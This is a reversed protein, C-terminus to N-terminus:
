NGLILKASTNGLNLNSNAKHIVKKATAQTNTTITVTHSSDITVDETILPLRGVNWTSPDEWNGTKISMVAVITNVTVTVNSSVPSTCSVSNTTVECKAYYNTTVTPSVPMTVSSNDSAKFWLLTGSCGTATLTISTGSTISVNAQPTPTTPIPNVTVAITATATCSNANSVTVTYIGSNSVSVNSISVSASTSTYANPGTWAYNTGNSTANLSITSGSCITTLGTVSVTPAVKNETIVVSASATCGNSGSGTVTYTGAATITASATTATFGGTGTWAYSSGGSATLTTSPNACTLNASTPTVTITPPVINETVTVNKFNTCGNAGTTTVLYTAPSTVNISAASSILIGSFYWKYTAGGSATLTLNPNTCNLVTSTPTVVLPPPITNDTITRSMSATCGNSGTVTVVYTGAVNITASNTTATFGGPGTWAYSNGGSATLVFSSNNCDLVTTAPTLTATPVTNSGSVIVSVTATCGNPRTGTVVYTGANSITVSETTATFGSPGTWSYLYSNGSIATLTTSPNVCTLVASTPMVTVTPPATNDILTISTTASCGNTGTATVVYTGAVSVTVAATTATFGGAGTWAYTSGGSATLIRSPNLCNLVNSTINSSITVPTPTKNETITFLILSSRCGNDATAQLSFSGATTITLNPNVIAGVFTDSRWSYTSNGSGSATLTLTPNLCTLVTSTPTITVTPTANNATLTISATATCGNLATGTLTYVGAVSPNVSGTTSTFGGPGSWSYTNQINANLVIYPNTCTIVANSPNPTITVVPPVTNGGTVTVSATATCGNASTVKVTYTGGATVTVSATTATFVDGALSWAYSVGSSGSAVLTVSPNSCTLAASTPTVSVTPLTKNESIVVSASATCANTGTATVAYTGGNSITASATSATFGGTGTWAYTSGGSATLTTSPTICNLAASTPTVSLTIPTKNETLIRSVSATCGNTGTATVFYTGGASLNVSASTATFGGTGTWAYTNGGTATLTVSPVVCNLVTTTPTVSLVPPIQNNAVVINATATCNNTGTATVLYTGSYIINISASTSVFGVPGSWAYTNGGSATLTTTPTTCSLAASAPNIAVPPPTTNQNVIASASATCGNTGSVTITYTGPTNVNISTVGTATFGGGTKSWSYTVGNSNQSLTVSSNTCTLNGTIPTVSVTPLTKNETIVVSRTATCGNSGTIIVVYTGSTSINVIATTATFGGTGTWSYSNGGSATVAISPDTCTLVATAYSIGASPAAINQTVNINGLSTCGNAGTGTAFYLDPTTVTISPTTATFGGGSRTWVYSIGGNATLNQTPNACTLVASTPTITIVPPTKDETIVVSATATCGNTSNIGLVTYTGAFNITITAGSAGFGGTGTWSFNNGSVGSAMVSASPNTCTLSTSSPTATVTPIVKNIAVTQSATATCGNSKTATVTYDGAVNLNINRSTSTFGNPGTWAYTYIEGFSAVAYLDPNSCTLTIPPLPSFSINPLTIDGNTVSILQTASCGNASTVKVTYTSATSTTIAATTATFGGSARTWVYAGGGTATLTATPNPCTLIASTPTISVTPVVKDQTVTVSASATCGNASNTGTVTYIGAQNIAFSGTAAYTQFVGNVIGSWAYSNGGSPSITTSPNTCTLISSTPTVTITPLAKNETINVSATATCGNTTNTGVVTYIGGSTINAVATTATFGGSDRTWSYSNGGSATINTSPTTCNLLATTPSVTVTPVTKDETIVVSATATCGASSTGTVLYTGMASITAAATSATFGGTGTWAYTSAGSATVTTSSNACTLNTGNNNSLSVSPLPNITLNLTIISDCGAVNTLTDKYIGSTTYNVAKTPWRYSSCASVSTSSSTASGTCPIQSYTAWFNAYSSGFTNTLTKTGASPDVDTTSNFYGSIRLDGYANISAGFTYCISGVAGLGKAYIFNGDNDIKLILGDSIGIAGLTYVGPGPDFDYQFGSPSDVFGTRIINNGNDIFIGSTSGRIPKTWAELGTSTNIKIVNNDASLFVNGLKDAVTKFYNPTNLYDGYTRYVWLLTGTANFKALETYGRPTAFNNNKFSWLFYIDGNTDTVSSRGYQNSISYNINDFFYTYGYKKHFVYNGSADIKLFFGESNTASATSVVVSGVNPDFDVTGYFSGSLQINNQADVYMDGISFAMTTANAQFNKAWVFNGNIDLKLMFMSKFDAAVTGNSMTFTGAGPDFDMDERFNGAIVVNKNADVVINLVQETDGTTGLFKVWILNDNKDLKVIFLDIGPSAGTNTSTKNLIGSGPDFDNTGKYRGSLYQNEDKDISTNSVSIYDTATGSGYPSPWRSVASKKYVPDQAFTGSIALLLIAIAKILINKKM